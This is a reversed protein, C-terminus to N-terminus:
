KDVEEFPIENKSEIKQLESSNNRVLGNNIDDIPTYNNNPLTRNKRFMRFLSFIIVVIILTLVFYQLKDGGIIKINEKAINV